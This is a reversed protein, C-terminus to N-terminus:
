KGAALDILGLADDPGKGDTPRLNSPGLGDSQAQGSSIGYIFIYGCGAAGIDTM